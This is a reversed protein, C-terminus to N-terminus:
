VIPLKTSSVAMHVLIGTVMVSFYLGTDGLDGLFQVYEEGL